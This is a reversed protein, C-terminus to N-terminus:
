INYLEAASGSKRAALCGPRIEHEYLLAREPLHNEFVLGFKGRKDMRKLKERIRWRLRADPIQNILDDIAAM